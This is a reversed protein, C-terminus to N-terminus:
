KRGCEATLQVQHLKHITGTPLTFTPRAQGGAIMHLATLAPLWDSGRCKPVIELDTCRLLLLLLTQSRLQGSIRPGGFSFVKLNIGAFATTYDTNVM